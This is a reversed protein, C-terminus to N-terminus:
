KKKKDVHLSLIELAKLIWKLAIDDKKTKTLPAVVKLIVSSGSIVAMVITLITMLDM